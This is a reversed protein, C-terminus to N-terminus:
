TTQCMVSIDSENRKKKTTESITDSSYITKDSGIAILNWNHAVIHEKDKEREREGGGDRETLEGIWWPSCPADISFGVICLFYGFLLFSVTYLFPLLLILFSDSFAYILLTPSVLLSLVPFPDWPVWVYLARPMSPMSPRYPRIFKGNFANLSLFILSVSCVNAKNHIFLCPCLLPMASM